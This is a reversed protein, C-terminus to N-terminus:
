KAVKPAPRVAPKKDKGPVRKNIAAIVDKIGDFDAEFKDGDRLMRGNATKSVPKGICKLPNEPLFIYLAM